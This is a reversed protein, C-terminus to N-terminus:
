WRVGCANCRATVGPGIEVDTSRCDARPCIELPLSAHLADLHEPDGWQERHALDECFPCAGDESGDPWRESRCTCREDGM